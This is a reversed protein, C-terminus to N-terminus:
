WKTSLQLTVFDRGENPTVIGASSIHEYQLGIGNGNKDRVGIYLDGNFQPAHGGLMSDTATIGGIGWGSRLEIPRLDILFGIGVSGYGSGKRNTDKPSSDSWFGARTQWYFGNSLDQRYAGQLVKTSVPGYDASHLVGLGYGVSVEGAIASSNALSLTLITLLSKKM